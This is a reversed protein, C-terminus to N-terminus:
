GPHQMFREQDWIAPESTDKELTPRMSSRLIAAVLAGSLREIVLPLYGTSGYHHKYFAFPQQGHAQDQAHDIDLVLVAPATAYGAIFQDVLASSLRFIDRRRAAHEFRSITSASAVAAEDNFPARGLGLRFM